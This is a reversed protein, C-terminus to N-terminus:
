LTSPDGTPTADTSRLSDATSCADLFQRGLATPHFMGRFWGEPKPGLRHAVEALVPHKALRPSGLSWREREVRPGSFSILGLRALNEGASSLQEARLCGILSLDSTFVDCYGERWEEYYPASMPVPIEVIRLQRYKFVLPLIRAEDPTLQGIISVFAPHAKSATETNMATALLNAYM